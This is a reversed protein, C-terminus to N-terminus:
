IEETTQLCKALSTRWHILEIGFDRAISSCDMVSYNSRKAPTPYANSPIPHVICKSKTLEKIAVAFEYWSIIGTNSYHYINQYKLQHNSQHIKAIMTLLALALDPSYTPSGIQDNVVNISEKENMLRCMTNVFNKGTKNYVWATRVVINKANAKIVALEGYLKTRGYENIPNTVDSPIYPSNKAGDFVYDTSVHILTCNIKNCQNAIKEVSLGNILLALEKENEAKDVATYAACNIFYNPQNSKFFVDITEPKSLDLLSRDLFLFDFQSSFSSHLNKIDSGVQGNIGTVVILPKM